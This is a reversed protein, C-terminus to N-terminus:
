DERVLIPRLARDLHDGYGRDNFLLVIPLRGDRRATAAFQKVIARLSSLATSDAVFGESTHFRREVRRLHQAAWARRVLRVLASADLVNEEFLLPDFFEDQRRMQGVFAAWRDPDRLCARFQDLSRPGPWSAQLENGVPILRPYCYPAPGEFRWNMGSTSALAKVSSALLGLIVVQAEHRDRDALYAAFSHNAPAAPGAVLRLDIRPDLMAMAQAVQNSFSMGYVAVLLDHGPGPQAPAEPGPGPDIWGAKALPATMTDAPGILRRIKGEISRGYDFYQVPWGPARMIPGRPSPFLANITVDILVLTAVMWGGVVLVERLHGATSDPPGPAQAESNSTSSSPRSM